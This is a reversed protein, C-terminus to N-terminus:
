FPLDGLFEGCDVVDLVTIPKGDVYRQQEGMHPRYIGLKQPATHLWAESTVWVLTPVGDRYITIQRLYGVKYGTVQRKTRKSQYDQYSINFVIIDKTKDSGTDKAM